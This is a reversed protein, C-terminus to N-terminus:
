RVVVGRTKHFDSEFKMLKKLCDPVDNNLFPVLLCIGKNSNTRFRRRLLRQQYTM